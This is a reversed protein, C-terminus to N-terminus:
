NIKADKITPFTLKTYYSLSQEIVASANKAGSPLTLAGFTNIELGCGGKTGDLKCKIDLNHEGSTMQDFEFEKGSGQPTEGIERANLYITYIDDYEPGNDFIKISQKPELYVLYPVDVTVNKQKSNIWLLRYDLLATQAELASAKPNSTFLRRGIINNNLDMRKDDNNAEESEHATAFATAWDTGCCQSMLWNWYSHRFADGRTLYLSGPFLAQTTTISSQAAINSNYAKLPNTIVLYKEAKTLKDFQDNKIPTIKNIEKLLLETFADSSTSLSPNEKQTKEFAASFQSFTFEPLADIQNTTLNNTDKDRFNITIPAQPEIDAPANIIAGQFAGGIQINPEAPPAPDTINSINIPQHPTNNVFFNATTNTKEDEDDDGGCGSLAFAMFSLTILLKTKKVM